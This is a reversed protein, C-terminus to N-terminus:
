LKERFVVVDEGAGPAEWSLSYFVGWLCIYLVTIIYM